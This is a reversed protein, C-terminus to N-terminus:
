IAKQFVRFRKYVKAGAYEMEARVKKNTEMMLHGDIHTLGAKRAEDLISSALMTDLGLGQYDPRIAVLLLNLQKTRKGATLIPIFGFPFLYGKSKQFGKSIDPMTIIHAVPEDKGNLIVKIFRPDMVMLYRNAFEDMEKLTYPMFGYIELFTDNILTFVPRIYPKIARRTKFNIIRLGQNNRKIREEVKKYLEPNTEPIDLKYTVLDIEKEFGLAELHDVLYKFNCHSAIVHPKDFGEVLYGQPDKDTFAFPGILKDKGQEKAWSVVANILAEIVERDDWAELFNFRAINVKKMENYKHAIVGMIRGVVKGDRYALFLITDCHELLLSKKPSFFKWEDSILTPVWNEHDKHIKAPLHIFKKLERRGKVPKVTVPM